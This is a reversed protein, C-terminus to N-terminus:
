KQENEDQSINEKLVQITKMKKNSESSTGYIRYCMSTIVDIFDQVLNM